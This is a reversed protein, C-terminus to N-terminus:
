EVPVLDLCGGKFEHPIICIPYKGTERDQLYAQYRRCGDRLSCELGECRTVYDKMFMSRNNAFDMGFEQPYILFM